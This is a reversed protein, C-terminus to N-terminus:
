KYTKYLHYLEGVLGLIIGLSLFAWKYGLAGGIIYGVFAGIIISFALETGVSLAKVVQPMMAEPM